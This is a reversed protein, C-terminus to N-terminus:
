PMFRSCWSKCRSCGDKCRSRSRHCFRLTASTGSCFPILWCVCAFSSDNRSDCPFCEHVLSMEKRLNCSLALRAYSYVYVLICTYLYLLICTLCTWLLCSTDFYLPRWVEREGKPRKTVWVGCLIYLELQRCVLRHSSSDVCWLLQVTQPKIPKIPQIHNSSTQPVLCSLVSEYVKVCTWNIVHM